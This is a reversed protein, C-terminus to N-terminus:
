KRCRVSRRRNSMIFVNHCQLGSSKILRNWYISHNPMPRYAWPSYMRRNNPQIVSIPGLSTCYPASQASAENICYMARIPRIQNAILRHFRPMKMTYKTNNNLKKLCFFIMKTLWKCIEDMAEGIKSGSLLATSVRVANYM